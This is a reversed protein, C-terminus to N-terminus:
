RRATSRSARTARAPDRGRAQAGQARALRARGARCDRARRTDEDVLFGSGDCRGDPCAAMATASRAAYSLFRPYENQFTLKVTASAATATSPSTIEAM